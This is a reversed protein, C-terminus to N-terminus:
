SKLPCLVSFCARDPRPRHLLVQVFQRARPMWIIPLKDTAVFVESEGGMRGIILSLAANEIAPPVHM